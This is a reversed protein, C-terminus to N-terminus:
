MNGNENTNENLWEGGSIELYTEGSVRPNPKIYNRIIDRANFIAKGFTNPRVKVRGIKVSGTEYPNFWM